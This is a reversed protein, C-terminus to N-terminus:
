PEKHIKGLTTNLLGIGWVSRGNIGMRGKGTLYVSFMLFYLVCFYFENGAGKIFKSFTKIFVTKEM